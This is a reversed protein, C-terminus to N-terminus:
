PGAGDTPNRFLPTSRTLSFGLYLRSNITSVFDLSRQLHLSAFYSLRNMIKDSAHYILSFITSVRCEDNEVPILCRM